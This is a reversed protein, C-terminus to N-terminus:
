MYMYMDHVNEGGVVMVVALFCSFDLKNSTGEGFEAVCEGDRKAPGDM